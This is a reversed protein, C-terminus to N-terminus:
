KQPTWAQLLKKHLAFTGKEKNAAFIGSKVFYDDIFNIQM